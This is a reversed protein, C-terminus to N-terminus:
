TRQLAAVPELKAARSSPWVGALVAVGVAVAICGLVLWPSTYFVDIPPVSQSELLRQVGYSLLRVFAFGIVVGAVGGVVGLVASEVLFQRRIDRQRGGVAKMVGIEGTRELVSMAMTNAIGLTAVLLGIIGVIALSLDMVRFLREVQAFQERFGTAFVGTAEIAAKVQAYSGEEAIQVRAAGYGATNSDRLILDLSSFFTIKPLSAAFDLPLVLRSFGTLQQNEEPLVGAIRIPVRESRIPISQLGFSILLMSRRLEDMVLTPVLLTVTKGLADEPAGLGLRDLMSVSVFAASDGATEFFTGQEPRYGPVVGMALPIGDAVVDIEKDDWRVQAPFTIEPYAAVVGPVADLVALVSDTLAVEDVRANADNTRVTLDGFGSIPTPTSTVRLTNYLALADFEARAIRQLGAGYSLLALLAAVGVAVGALTMLSRTRNSRLGDLAILLLDALRMGRAALASFLFPALHVLM